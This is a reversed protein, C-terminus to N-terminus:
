NGWSKTGHCSNSCSRTSSNWGPATTQRTGNVHVAVNVTSATYGSHCTACAIGEGSVHKSHRGTNPPAGHCSSCSSVQASGGTWVPSTRTGGTLGAGHCYNTCTLATGNWTPTVGGTRALAGWTLDLPQSSHATDTPVTHCQSCEFAASLAGGYLHAQHAGVGPASTATNGVTDRPPAAAVPNAGSAGTGGTLTGGHCSTCSLAGLDVAGNVHKGGAVDITGDARVTGPHCGACATVGGAVSPHTASTPPLGHCSGCSAEAAGGTWLPSPKSGGALSAGHCYNTCTLAAGNWSPTVGDSRALTGWTLDLPQSAHASSGPVAHCDSCV